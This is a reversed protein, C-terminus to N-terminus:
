AQARVGEGESALLKKLDFVRAANRWYFDERLDAPIQLVDMIYESGEYWKAVRPNDTAFCLRRFYRLAAHQDPNTWDIGPRPYFARIVEELWFRKGSAGSFDFYVHDFKEMLGLAEHMHPKGLHAGIVRLEPFRRAVNELYWPRMYESYTGAYRRTGPTGGLYGTHFLIPMRLAEARAYIRWYKPHDYPADPRIIKLGRFGQDYWRQVDEDSDIDGSTEIFAMGILKDPYKKLYPVMDENSFRDGQEGRGKTSSMVAVCTVTAGDATWEALHEEFDRDAGHHTHVNIIYKPKYAV